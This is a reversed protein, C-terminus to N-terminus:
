AEGLLVVSEDVQDIRLDVALSRLYRVVQEEGATNVRARFAKM